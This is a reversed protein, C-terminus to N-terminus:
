PRRRVDGADPGELVEEAVTAPAQGSVLVDAVPLWM